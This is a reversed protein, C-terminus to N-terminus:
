GVEIKPAIPESAKVWARVSNAAQDNRPAKNVDEYKAVMGYVKTWDVAKYKPEIVAYPVGRLYAYAVQTAFAERRVTGRRHAALGDRLDRFARTRAEQVEEPVGKEHWLAIRVAFDERREGSQRTFPRLAKHCKDEESRIIRAEEALSKIKVKLYTKGNM